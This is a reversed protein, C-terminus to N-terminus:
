GQVASFIREHMFARAVQGAHLASHCLEWPLAAGGLVASFRQWIFADLAGVWSIEEMVLKQLRAGHRALRDDVLLEALVADPVYSVVAAFICYHKM